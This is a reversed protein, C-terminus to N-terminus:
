TEAGVQEFVQGAMAMNPRAHESPGRGRRRLISRLREVDADTWLYAGGPGRELAPLIGDRILYGVYTPTVLYDEQRAQRIVQSTGVHSM